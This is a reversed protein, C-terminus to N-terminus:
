YQGCVRQLINALNYIQLNRRIPDYINLAEHFLHHYRDRIIGRRVGEHGSEIGYNGGHM